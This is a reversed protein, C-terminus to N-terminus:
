LRKGHFMSQQVAQLLQDEYMEHRKCNCLFGNMFGNADHINVRMKGEVCM